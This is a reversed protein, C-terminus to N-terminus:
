SLFDLNNKLKLVQRKYVDLHTYSVSPISEIFFFAESSALYSRLSDVLPFGINLKFAPFQCTIPRDRICM